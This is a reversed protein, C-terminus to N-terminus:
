QQAATSLYERMERLGEKNYGVYLKELGGSKNIIANVPIAQREHFPLQDNLLSIAASQNFLLEYEFHIKKESMTQIEKLSDDENLAVFLVDESSFQRAMENLEPIEKLCPGCWTAWVNVVVTKGRASENFVPHENGSSAILLQLFDNSKRLGEDASLMRNTENKAFWLLLFIVAAAAAIFIVTNRDTRM